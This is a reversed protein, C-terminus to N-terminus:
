SDAPKEAVESDKQKTQESSEQSSVSQQSQEPTSLLTDLFNTVNGYKSKQEPSLEEFKSKVYSINKQTDYFSVDGSVDGFFPEKANQEDFSGIQSARQIKYNIDSEELHSQEVCDPQLNWCALHYPLKCPGLNEKYIKDIADKISQPAEGHLYDRNLENEM